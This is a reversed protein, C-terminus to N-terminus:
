TAWKPVVPFIQANGSSFEIKSNLVEEDTIKIMAIGFCGNDILIHGMIKQDLFIENKNRDLEGEIKIGYIRKKVNARYKTRATLEQGMYCGKEWCIGNLKNFRLELLFFSDEGILDSFNPLFNIIEFNRFDKEEISKLKLNKNIKEFDKESCYLKILKKPLRPDDFVVFKDNINFKEIEPKLTKSLIFSKKEVSTEIKINSRLKYIELKLKLSEIKNSTCEIFIGNNQETLFFDFLFKGKPTLLASYIGVQPGLKYIDNSILGQLFKKRDAGEVILFKSNKCQYYHDTNIM